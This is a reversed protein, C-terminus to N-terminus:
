SDSNAFEMPSPTLLVELSAGFREALGFAAGACAETTGHQNVPLLIRVPKVDTSV